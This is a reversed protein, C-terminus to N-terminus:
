FAFLYTHKSKLIYAFREGKEKINTSDVEVIIDAAGCHTLLFIPWLNVQKSWFVYLYDHGM